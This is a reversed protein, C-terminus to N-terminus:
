FGSIGDPTGLGTIADYGQKAVCLYDDDCDQLPSFGNTGANNGKTVDFFSRERSYLRATTM